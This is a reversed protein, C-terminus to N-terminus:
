SITMLAYKIAKNAATCTAILTGKSMEVWVNDKESSCPMGYTWDRDGNSGDVRSIHLIQNFISATYITHKFNQSRGGDNTEFM